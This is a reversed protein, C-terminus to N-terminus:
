LRQAIITVQLSKITLWSHVAPSPRDGEESASPVKPYVRHYTALPRERTPRTYLQAPPRTGRPAHPAAEQGLGVEALCHGESLTWVSGNRPAGHDCASTGLGQPGCSARPAM